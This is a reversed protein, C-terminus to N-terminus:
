KDGVEIRDIDVRSMEEEDRNGQIHEHYFNTDMLVTQSTKVFM